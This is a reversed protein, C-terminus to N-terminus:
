VAQPAVVTQQSSRQDQSADDNLQAEPAVFLRAETTESSAVGNAVPREISRQVEEETAVAQVQQAVAAGQVVSPQPQTQTTQVDIRSPLAERQMPQVQQGFQSTESRSLSVDQTEPSAESVSALPVAFESRNSSQTESASATLSRDASLNGSNAVMESRNLSQAEATLPVQATTVHEAPHRPLVAQDDDTGDLVAAQVIPQSMNVSPTSVQVASQATNELPKSAQGGQANQVNTMGLPLQPLIDSDSSELYTQPTVSGEVFTPRSTVSPQQQTVENHESSLLTAMEPRTQFLREPASTQTNLSSALPINNRTVVPQSPEGDSSIVPQTLPINVQSSGDTQLIRPLQQSGIPQVDESVTELPADQRLVPQAVRGQSDALGERRITNQLLPAHESESPQPSQLSESSLPSQPLRASVTESAQSPIVTVPQEPQASEVQPSTRMTNASEVGTKVEARPVARSVDSPIRNNEASQEQTNMVPKAVVFLQNEPVQVDGSQVPEGNRVVHQLPTQDTRGTETEGGSAVHSSPTFGNLPIDSQTKSPPAASYLAQNQDPQGPQSNAHQQGNSDQLNQENKSVDATQVQPTTQESVFGSVPVYADQDLYQPMEVQGDVGLGQAGEALGAEEGVRTTIHEQMPKVQTLPTEPQGFVPLPADAQEPTSTLLPQSKPALADTRPQASPELAIAEDSLVPQVITRVVPESSVAKMDSVSVPQKEPVVDELMSQNDALPNGMQSFADADAEPLVGQFVNPGVDEVPLDQGLPVVLDGNALPAEPVLVSVIQKPSNEGEPPAGGELLDAMLAALVPQEPMPVDPAGDVTLQQHATQLMDRFGTGIDLLGSSEPPVVSPAGPLPQLPLLFM